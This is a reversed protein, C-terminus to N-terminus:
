QLNPAAGSPDRTLLSGHAPSYYQYTVLYLGDEADTYYGFQAGYGFPSSGWHTSSAPGYSDYMATGIVTGVSNLLQVANGQTDFANFVSGSATHRSLLRTSDTYM